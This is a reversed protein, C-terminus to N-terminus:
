TLFVTVIIVAIICVFLAVRKRRDEIENDVGDEAFSPALQAM